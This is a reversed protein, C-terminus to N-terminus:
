LFKKAENKHENWELCVNGFHSTLAIEFKLYTINIPMLTM